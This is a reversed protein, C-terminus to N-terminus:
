RSGNMGSFRSGWAQSAPASFTAGPCQKCHNSHAAETVMQCSSIFQDWCFGAGVHTSGCGVERQTRWAGAQPMGPTHQIWSQGRLSICQWQVALKDLKIRIADELYHRRVQSRGLLAPDQIPMTDTGACTKGLREVTTYEIPVFCQVFM